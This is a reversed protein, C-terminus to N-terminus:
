NKAQKNLIAFETGPYYHKLIEDYSSGNRAMVEAGYQSMGVGHGNGHVNFTFYGDNYDLTFATSKLSFIKRVDTGKINNGFLCISSVNDGSTQQVDGIPPYNTDIKRELYTELIGVFENYDFRVQSSYNKYIEEGYSTVNTLYPLDSSWVDSAKETIGNSCSHFVTMAPISNYVLYEGATDYVANQIKIFNSNYSKGWKKKLEDESVFAQCHSFDTCVDAGNHSANDEKKYFAYTRAAVSQAKIAEVSFSAPMEACVVGVIYDEFNMIYNKNNIHDYVTIDDGTIQTNDDTICSTLAYPVFSVFIILFALYIMFVKLKTVKKYYLVQRKIVTYALNM